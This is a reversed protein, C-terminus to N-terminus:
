LGTAFHSEDCWRYKQFDKLHFYRRDYAWLNRAKISHDLLWKKQLARYTGVDFDAMNRQIARESGNVLSIGKAVRYHSSSTFYFNADEVAEIAACEHDTLVRKRGRNHVGPGRRETGQKLVKYGTSKAINHLKFLEKRPMKGAYARAEALLRSRRPTDLVTQPVRAAQPSPPNACPVGVRARRRRPVERAMNSNIRILPQQVTLLQFENIYFVRKTLGCLIPALSRALV